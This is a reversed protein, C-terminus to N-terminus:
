GRRVTPNNATGVRVSGDDTTDERTTMCEDGPTEGIMFAGARESWVDGCTARNASQLDAGQKPLRGRGHRRCPTTGRGDPRFGCAGSLERMGTFIAGLSCALARMSREM